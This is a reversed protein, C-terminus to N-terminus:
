SRTTRENTTLWTIPTRLPLQHGMVDRGSRSWRGSYDRLIQCNFGSPSSRVCLGLAAIGYGFLKAVFLVHLVFSSVSKDRCARLDKRKTIKAGKQPWVEFLTPVDNGRPNLGGFDLIWFRFDEIHKM